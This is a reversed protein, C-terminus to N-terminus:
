FLRRVREGNAASSAELRESVARLADTLRPPLIPKGVFAVPDLARLREVTADDLNGSVFICPVGLDDRLRRAAEEGSDGGRLRLDMLVVDPPSSRAARLCSEVDAAIGVVGHGAAEVMMEVDLAIFMEDEVILVRLPTPSSPDGDHGSPM